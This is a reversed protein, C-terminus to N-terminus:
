CLIYVSSLINKLSMNRMVKVSATILTVISLFLHQLDILGVRNMGIKVRYIRVDM